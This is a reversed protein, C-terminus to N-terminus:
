KMKCSGIKIIFVTQTARSSLLAHRYTLPFRKVESASLAQIQAFEATHEVSRLLLESSAIVDLFLEHHM